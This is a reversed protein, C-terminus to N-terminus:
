LFLPTPKPQSHSLQLQSYFASSSREPPGESKIEKAEQDDETRTDNKSQNEQLIQCIWVKGGALGKSQIEPNKSLDYLRLDKLVKTEDKGYKNIRLEKLVLIFWNKMQVM